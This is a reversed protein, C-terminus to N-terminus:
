RNNGYVTGHEGDVIVEMGDKLTTTANEANVVCPIGLERALTAAHSLIGGVETVIAAAQQIATFYVPTTERAVLVGGPEMRRCDALTRVVCVRGAVTAPHSAAVGKLLLEKSSIPEKM